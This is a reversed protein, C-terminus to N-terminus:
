VVLNWSILIPVIPIRCGLTSSFNSIPNGQEANSNVSSGNLCWTCWIQVFLRHGFWHIMCYYLPLHRKTPYLTVKCCARRSRWGASYFGILQIYCNLSPPSACLAVLAAAMYMWYKELFTKEPLAEVPLGEPTVPPPTRLIPLPPLRPYRLSITSNLTGSSLM